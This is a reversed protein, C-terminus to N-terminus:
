KTVGERVLAMGEIVRTRSDTLEEIIVIDYVYRGPKLDIDYPLRIRIIGAASDVIESIFEIYNSSGPHKRLQAKISYATIDLPTNSDSSELNFVQSFDSGTNIVINSVYVAAM